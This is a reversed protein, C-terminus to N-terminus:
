APAEQPTSAGAAIARRELATLSIRVMRIDSPRFMGVIWTYDRRSTYYSAIMEDGRVVGGAYSTDGGSPLDGLYIMRTEEFVFLSTRKRSFIGGLEIFRRARTAQYRGIGYIRGNYPFLLPGDFRTIPSRAYSWREYPPAAVAILTCADASGWQNDAAGELRATALIRGDPLFEFDTEDCGDGEHVQSVMDWREGDQSRFLASRGHRHWYATVYWTSNDRTKPRWFLWGTNEIDRPDTWTVGDASSTVATTYPIARWGANPLMYLFLRGHIQAFTPDRYEGKPNRFETVKQWAHADRSRWLLMRSSRSGTHHPSTQHALYYWGDFFTLDTNSNHAGDAVADWTELVVDRHVGAVHPRLAAWAIWGAAQYALNIARGRLRRLTRNM